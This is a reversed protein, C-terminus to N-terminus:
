DEDTDALLAEIDEILQLKDDDCMEDITCGRVHVQLDPNADMLEKLRESPSMSKSEM